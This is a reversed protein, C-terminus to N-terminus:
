ERDQNEKVEACGEVSDRMVDEQVPQGGNSDSIDRQSPQFGVESTVCNTWSLFRLDPDVGIELPTGWPETRPGRMRVNEPFKM